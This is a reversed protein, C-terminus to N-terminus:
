CRAETRGDAQLRGDPAEAGLGHLRRRLEDADPHRMEDLIDLAQRWARRAAAPDGIMRHSDGLRTLTRSEYYRSAVERYLSLAQRYYSIAEDDHGLSHHIFGLSDLTAAMGHTDNGERQLALAQECYRRADDHRDLHANLWGVNNLANAVATRRGTTRSLALAQEAHHLSERPKGLREYVWGIANHTDAEYVADGIERFRDLAYRLHKHAEDDRRLASLAIAVSRHLHALGAPDTTRDAADLVARRTSVMGYWLGCRQFFQMTTRALQWTHTDFGQGAAQEIAALLSRHEADFWAIAQRQDTVDAVTVGARPPLLGAADDRYLLRNALDATHLYHDFLRHRADRRHAEGEDEHVLETAYARLLDHFTYRGPTRETLLHAAALEALSARVQPAPVGALSAAAPIAVDPGPLLGLLRFLRAAAPTLTRYSWSFVARVDNLEVGGFGELRGRAAALEGAIASLTFSPNLAARGAVIALALPLGACGAVMRDVADPEAAVRDTGLRSGLLERAEGDALLEIHIPQVGEAVVPGSLRDRSTIVALCGPAGPLLPRVQEADRANDLVVLMRRDALLSRYLSSQAALSDPIRHAPVHLAQLFGQLVEAPSISSGEADFGCLDVYLQGDPFFQRSRHSWHLALATKGVGATGTVAAAARPHGSGRDPLLADLRSLYEARGVFSAVGVPLQAPGVSGDPGAAAAPVADWGPVAGGGPGDGSTWELARQGTTLTVAPSGAIIALQLGRLSPGPELGLEAILVQRAQRYAALADARRGGLYLAIMLQGHLREQLPQEAVLKALEAVLAAHRGAALDADIRDLLAAFRSEELSGCLRERLAGTVADALAPGRWLDLATRLRESRAAPDAIRRAGDVLQRFRHLDVLDLPVRLLYGDGQALLAISVDDACSALRLAKRIRSILTQLAARASAPPHQGWLLAVLRGATVTRGPDLLLVALTLREQRRQLPILEGGATWVEVAGLLRFEM